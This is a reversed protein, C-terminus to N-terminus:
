LKQFKLLNKYGVKVFCQKLIKVVEKSYAPSVKRLATDGTEM